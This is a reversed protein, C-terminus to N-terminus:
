AHVDPAILTKGMRAQSSHAMRWRCHNLRVNGAHHLGYPLRSVYKVEIYAKEGDRNFKQYCYLGPAKMPVNCVRAHPMRGKETARCIHRIRSHAEHTQRKGEAETLLRFHLFVVVFHPHFHLLRCFLQNCQQECHRFRFQLCRRFLLGRGPMFGQGRQSQRGIFADAGKELSRIM